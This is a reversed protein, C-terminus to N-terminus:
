PIGRIIEKRQIQHIIGQGILVLLPFSRHGRSNLKEEITSFTKLGWENLLLKLVNLMPTINRTCETFTIRIRTHGHREQVLSGLLPGKDLHARLLTKHLSKSQPNPFALSTNRM